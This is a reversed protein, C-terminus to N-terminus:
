RGSTNKIRNSRMAFMWVVLLIDVRVKYMNRIKVEINSMERRM